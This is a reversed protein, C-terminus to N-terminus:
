SIPKDDVALRTILTKYVNRGGHPRVGTITYYQTTTDPVGNKPIPFAVRFANATILRQRSSSNPITFEITMRSETTDSIALSVNEKFEVFAWSTTQNSWTWINGGMTDKTLTGKQIVIVRDREGIGLM